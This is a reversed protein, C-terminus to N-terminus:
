HNAAHLMIVKRVENLVTYNLVTNTKCHALVRRVTLSRLEPREHLDNDAPIYHQMSTM